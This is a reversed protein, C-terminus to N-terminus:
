ARSAWAGHFGFPILHDFHCAAIPGDGISRADLVELRSRDERADYVMTLLWGDDEATGEPRPVFVGEGPSRDTGPEYTDVRGTELDHKLLRAFPADGANTAAGAYYAFRHRSGEVRPSVRPLEVARPLVVESTVGDRAPDLTARRIESRLPADIRGGVVGGVFEELGDSHAYHTYDFVIKGGEEFANVTHELLFGDTRFRRIQKPTDIPVVVIETGREPKWRADSIPARQRFLVDVLSMYLPAFTFVLHRETAVFDHLVRV